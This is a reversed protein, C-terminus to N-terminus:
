SSHSKKISRIIKNDLKNPEISKCREVVEIINQVDVKFADTNIKSNALEKAGKDNSMFLPINLYQATILSHIEGLNHGAKHDKFVNFSELKTNNMFEYFDEFTNQYSRKYFSDVLFDDYKLVQIFGNNVLSKIYVNHFLENHLVYIHIVPKINLIEFISKFFPINDSKELILNCFDADLLVLNNGM